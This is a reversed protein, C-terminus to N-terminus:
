DPPVAYGPDGVVVLGRCRELCDTLNRSVPEPVPTARYSAVKAREGPHGHRVDARPVPANAAAPNLRSARSCIGSVYGALRASNRAWASVKRRASEVIRARVSSSNRRPLSRSRRAACSASSVGLGSGLVL